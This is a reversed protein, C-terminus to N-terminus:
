ELPILALFLTFYSLCIFANFISFKRVDVFEALSAVATKNNPGARPLNLPWIITYFNCAAGGFLHFLQLSTIFKAIVKMGPIKAYYAYM